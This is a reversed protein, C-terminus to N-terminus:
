AKVAGCGNVCLVAQETSQVLAIFLREKPLSNFSLIVCCLESLECSIVGCHFGPGTNTDSDKCSSPSTIWSIVEASNDEYEWCIYLLIDFDLFAVEAVNPFKNAPKLHCVGHKLDKTRQM